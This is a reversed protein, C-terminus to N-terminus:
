NMGRLVEDDEVERDITIFLQHVDEFPTVGSETKFEKFDEWMQHIDDFKIDKARVMEGGLAAHALSFSVKVHHMMALQLKIINDIDGEIDKATRGDVSMKGELDVRDIFAATVIMTIEEMDKIKKQYEITPEMAHNVADLFLPNAKAAEELKEKCHQMSIEVTKVGVIMQNIKHQQQKTLKTNM